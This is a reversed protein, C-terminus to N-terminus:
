ILCQTLLKIWQNSAFNTKSYSSHIRQDPFYISIGQARQLNKGAVTALVCNKIIKKSETIEDNLQKLLSSGKTKDKFSANKMNAQLNTLFDYYDVFTPEEFSTCYKKNASARIASKVSNSRQQVICQLLINAISNISEELSSILSLDIASLTYDNTIPDYTQKYTVVINKALDAPSPSGKLFPQLALSYNWGAGYEVEQSSVMIEAYDKINNGVEVMSMLCADFGIIKFKGRILKECIYKLATNLKQNTLYNRTTDDWCIGRLQPEILDLFGISRDLDLTNTVPNFTFLAAPNIIRHREPDIIGTGHNWLVLMYNRAPYNNIAWTCCSILTNPDGSDMKQTLPDNANVHYIENPGKIVYRRTVKQQATIRIDVHAVITIHQSSAIQAMQQINRSAFSRLDNDAAMYVILTWDRIDPDIKVGRFNYIDSEHMAGLEACFDSSCLSTVQEIDAKQSHKAINTQFFICAIALLCYKGLYKM